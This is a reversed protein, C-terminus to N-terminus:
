AQPGDGEKLSYGSPPLSSFSQIEGITQKIREHVWNLNLLVDSDLFRIVKFGHAELDNQRKGDREKALESLHTNGDVEIILKLGICMFDAIYNLVPRQRRFKHGTKGAKLIHTWLFVEAKTLDRRNQRAYTKLRKNYFSFKDV